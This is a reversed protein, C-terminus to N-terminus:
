PSPSTASTSAPTASSASRTPRTPSAPRRPRPTRRTPPTGWASPSTAATRAAPRSRRRDESSCRPGPTPGARSRSRGGTARRRSSRSAAASRWSSEPAARPRTSWRGPSTSGGKELPDQELSDAGFSFSTMRGSIIDSRKPADPSDIDIGPADWGTLVDRMVKIGDGDKDQFALFGVILRMLFEVGQELKMHTKDKDTAFEELTRRTALHLRDPGRLGRRPQGRHEDRRQRVDLDAGRADVRGAPDHVAASAPGPVLEHRGARAPRSRGGPRRREDRRGVWAEAVSALEDLLTAM